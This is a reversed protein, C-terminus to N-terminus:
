STCVERDFQQGAAVSELGQRIDAILDAVDEVGVSLRILGLAIGTIKAADGLDDESFDLDAPIEIVSEVGGLSTATPILKLADVFKQAAPL